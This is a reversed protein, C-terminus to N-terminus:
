PQLRRYAKRSLALEYRTNKRLEAHLHISNRASFIAVLDDRLARDILGIAAATDAKTEFRLKTIDADTARTRVLELESRPLKTATTIRQWIDQRLTVETRKM